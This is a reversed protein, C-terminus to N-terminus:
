RSIMVLRGAPKLTKVSRCSMLSAPFIYPRNAQFTFSAQVFVGMMHLPDIESPLTFISFTIITSLPYSDPFPLRPKVGWGSVVLRFLHHCVLARFGIQHAVRFEM